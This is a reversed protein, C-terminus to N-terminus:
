STASLEGARLLAIVAPGGTVLSSAIRGEGDVIVAMPTGNAGLKTSLAWAPDLLVPSAFGEARVGEVAGASVILLAPSDPPPSSEWAVVDKHMARCFGCDPNWFLLATPRTVLEALETEDGELSELRVSPVESGLPLGPARGAGGLVEQLLTEIWDGGAALWSAITGDDGVLVASPTGNAQYAEYAALREDVLVHELGHKAAERRILEGDGDSLLAVTLDDAHDRQWRAVEPMLMSCPTCTPSTFLLLAPRGPRLLDGLAVSDGDVSPLLFAPAPMGPALGLQLVDDPEELDFGAARLRGEVADLRVLVRGYSRLVHAVAYGGIAAVAVLAVGLALVLWELGDLRSVWTFAGPGPDDHGVAIVLAAAAAALAGNRALAGWGAPASHLRGFCHCDPAEGRVMAAVIAASFVLLLALGATAAYWRTAAPLLLLGISLEALPLGLTVAGVFRDPVGFSRTSERAGVGDLLKAFGATLFVAGLVLAIAVVVLDATALAAAVGHTMVGPRM